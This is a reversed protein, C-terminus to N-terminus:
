VRAQWEMSGDAVECEWRGSWTGAQWEVSGGDNWTRM